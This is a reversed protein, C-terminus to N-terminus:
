YILILVIRIVSKFVKSLYEYVDLFFYFILNIIDQEECRNVYYEIVYYVKCLLNGNIM